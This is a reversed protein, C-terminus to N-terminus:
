SQWSDNLGAAHSTLELMGGPFAYTMSSAHPLHVTVDAHLLRETLRNRILGVLPLIAEGAVAAQHCRAPSAGHLPPGEM